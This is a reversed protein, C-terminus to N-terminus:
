NVNKKLYKTKFCYWKWNIFSWFTETNKEHNLKLNYIIPHIRTYSQLSCSSIYQQLLPYDQTVSTKVFLFINQQYWFEIDPHNWVKDRVFDFVTYGANRFHAIWYEPYQENIHYTGVQGPIAGSFLVVNSLTTLKKVFQEAVSEPLHEAVELSMALDFKRDIKFDEKLDTLLINDSHVQIKEKELYPGEVGLYDKVGMEENWVKLWMGTGCGIDIVSKPKLIEAVIPLIIQAARFSSLEMQSYFKNDYKKAEIM